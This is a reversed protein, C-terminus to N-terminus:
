KIVTEGNIRIPQVEPTTVTQEQSVEAPLKLPQIQEISEKKRTNKMVYFVLM